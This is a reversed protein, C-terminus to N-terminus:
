RDREAIARSVEGGFGHLARRREEAAQRDLWTPGWYQTQEGLSMPLVEVRLRRRPHTRRREQLLQLLNSPVTWTGDQRESVLGYQALRALRRLNLGVMERPDVAKGKIYIAKRALQARHAPPDYIGGCHSAVAVLTRDAPKVWEDAESEVRVIDRERM